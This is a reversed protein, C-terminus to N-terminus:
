GRPHGPRGPPRHGHPPQPIQHPHHLLRQAYRLRHHGPQRQRGPRPGAPPRHPQRGARGTRAHLLAAGRQRPRLPFNARIGGDAGAPPRRRRGRGRRLRRGPVGAGRRQASIGTLSGKEYNERRKRGTRSEAHYTISITNKIKGDDGCLYCSPM